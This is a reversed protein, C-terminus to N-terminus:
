PEVPNLRMAREVLETAEETRGAWARCMAMWGLAFSGSRDLEIAKEGEAVASEYEDLWLYTWGLISHATASDPDLAVARRALELAETLVIGRDDSFGAIWEYVLVRALSIYPEAFEADLSQARRFLARAQFLDEKRFSRTYEHGRLVCDYAEANDTGKRGLRKAESDSLTVRLAFAIKQVVEDQVSFIDLLERDYREAWRHQGSKGDVLQATIRVRTGAKRVSGELVHDAGLEECVQQATASKGKFTFSSQRSIVGLGSVRSLETILDEVIGDSFYEQEPDGSHNEFPLVAVIPRLPSVERERAGKAAHGPSSASRGTQFAVSYAGKPLEIVVPDDKGAGTYYELLKARLRGAEVRVISDIAPDFSQDRDFVEVGIIFQKLRRSGGTLTEEVIFKLFRSQRESQAFLPHSLMRVLQERVASVSDASLRHSTEAM